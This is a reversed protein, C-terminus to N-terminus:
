PLGPIPAEQSPNESPSPTIPKPSSPPISKPTTTPISTTPIPTATTVNKITIPLGCIKSETTNVFRLKPNNPDCLKSKEQPSIASSTPPPSTSPSLRASPTQGSQAQSRNIIGVELVVSATALAAVLVVATFSMRISMNLTSFMAM